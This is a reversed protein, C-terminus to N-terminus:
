PVLFIKSSYPCKVKTGSPIGVVDVLSKDSVFPSYVFGPKDVVKLGVPLDKSALKRTSPASQKKDQPPSPPQDVDAVPAEEIPTDPDVRKPTSAVEQRPKTREPRAPADPNIRMTPESQASPPFRPQEATGLSTKRSSAVSSRPPDSGIRFGNEIKEVWPEFERLRARPYTLSFAAAQNGRTLFKEYFEIGNPETGSVVFWSGARRRYTISGGHRREASRWNEELSSGASQTGQGGWASIKFGGDSSEFATEAPGRPASVSRVGPPVSFQYALQPHVFDSWYPFTPGTGDQHSRPRNDEFRQGWALPVAIGFVFLPFVLSNKM